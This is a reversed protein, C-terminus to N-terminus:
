ETQHIGWQRDPKLNPVLKDQIYLHVKAWEVVKSGTNQVIVYNIDNASSFSVESNILDRNEILCSLEAKTASRIIKNLEKEKEIFWEAIKTKDDAIQKTLEESKYNLRM